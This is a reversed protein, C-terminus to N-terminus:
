KVQRWVFIELRVHMVYVRKLTGNFYAETLANFAKNFRESLM